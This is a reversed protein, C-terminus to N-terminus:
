ELLMRVAELRRAQDLARDGTPEVRVPFGAHPMHNSRLWEAIQELHYLSVDKINSRGLVWEEQYLVLREAKALDAQMQFANRVYTGLPAVELAPPCRKGSGSYAGLTSTASVCSDSPAASPASVEERPLPAAEPKPLPLKGEDQTSVVPVVDTPAATQPKGHF